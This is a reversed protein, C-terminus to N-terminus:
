YLKSEPGKLEKSRSWSGTDGPACKSEDELLIFLSRLPAWWEEQAGERSQMFCIWSM